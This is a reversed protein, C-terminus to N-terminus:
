VLSSLKRMYIYCSFTAPCGIKLDLSQWRWIVVLITHVIWYSLYKQAFSATILLGKLIFNKLKIGFPHVFGSSECKTNHINYWWFTMFYCNPVRVRRTRTDRLKRSLIVIFIFPIVTMMGPWTRKGVVPSRKERHQRYCRGTQKCVAPARQRPKLSFPGLDQKPMEKALNSCKRAQSSYRCKHKNASNVRLHSIDYIYPTCIRSTELDCVVVCWSRLLHAAAPREGASITTEVGVPPMSIQRNHTHHTTLYLDRRRASREDLPTRGVTTRRQTHDLFM